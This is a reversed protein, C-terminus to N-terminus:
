SRPQQAPQSRRYRTYLLSALVATACVAAPYAPLGYRPAYFSVLAYFMVMGFAPLLALALRLNRRRVAYFLAVALPPFTFFVDGWLWTGTLALHRFPHAAILAIARGQLEQDAAYGPHPHGAAAFQRTLKVREARVQRYFTFADEPRGAIEAALDADGLKFDPWDALRQLREGNRLEERSFGIMRRLAGNIPYPAWISLSGLFEEGTMQNMAARTYLVEGGRSTINFVGLAGHNRYMWPTVVAVFVATFVAALRLSALTSSPRRFWWAALPICVAVGLTVYLFAGKVLALLGFSLGAAAMRWSRSEAVGV